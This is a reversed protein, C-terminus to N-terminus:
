EDSSDVDLRDEGLRMTAVMWQAPLVIAFASPSPGSMRGEKMSPLLCSASGFECRTCRLDVRRFKAVKEGVNAGGSAAALSRLWRALQLTLVLFADLEHVQVACATRRRRDGSGHGRASGECNNRLGSRAKASGHAVSVFRRDGIRSM